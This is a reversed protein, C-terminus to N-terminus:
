SAFAKEVREVLESISKVTLDPKGAGLGSASGKGDSRDVHVSAIGLKNAPEIDHFRSEAVHLIKDFKLKLKKRAENFHAHKPKYARVDEATVIVDFEVGLKPLTAVEFMRRDVNSVIALKYREKLAQLAEVTDDFVPWRAISEALVGCEIDGAGAGLLERSVSGLVDRYSRYRGEQKTREIEGFRRVLWEPDEDHGLRELLPLMASTIGTQWDVLTGYCDFTLAEFRCLDIAM